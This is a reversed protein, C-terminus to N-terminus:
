TQHTRGQHHRHVDILLVLQKLHELQLHVQLLLVQRLLQRRLLVLQQLLHLHPIFASIGM